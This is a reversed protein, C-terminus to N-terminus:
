DENKALLVIVENITKGDLEKISYQMEGFGIGFDSVLMLIHFIILPYARDIAEAKLERNKEPILQTEAQKLIETVSSIYTYSSSGDIKIPNNIKFIPCEKLYKRSESKITSINQNNIKSIFSSRINNIEKSSYLINVNTFITGDEDFDDLTEQTEYFANDCDIFDSIADEFAKALNDPMFASANEIESYSNIKIKLEEVNGDIYREKKSAILDENAKECRSMEAFLESRILNNEKELYKQECDQIKNDIISDNGHTQLSILMLAFTFPLIKIMM